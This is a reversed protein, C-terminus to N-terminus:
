DSDGFTVHWRTTDAYFAPGVPVANIRAVLQVSSAVRFYQQAQLADRFAANMAFALIRNSGADRADCEMFRLLAPFVERDAPDALFDILVTVRGRDEDSHRFVAYGDIRDDRELAIIRYRFHPLEVYKWELYGADRRVAFDFKSSVRTWLDTFRADFHEFRRVGPDIPGRARLARAVPAALLSVLGNAVAPWRPRALAGGALPKVLCPVPGVDPWQLKRFLRHSGISLGMGLSAGSHRDWTHFLLEGLGQRRREPTVMVDMGWSADVEQGAVLLRVPMTAYQGVITGGDRAIWIQPGGARPNRAYQWNWREASADALADGFVRRFLADVEVRDDARYRDVNM